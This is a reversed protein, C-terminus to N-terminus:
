RDYYKESTTLKAKKFTDVAIIVMQRLAGIAEYPSYAGNREYAKLTKDAQLLFLDVQWEPLKYTGTTNDM